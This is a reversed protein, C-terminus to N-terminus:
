LGHKEKWKPWDALVSRGWDSYWGYYERRERDIEALRYKIQGSLDSFIPRNTGIEYFRAWLPPANADKVIKNDDKKNDDKLWVLRIGTLKVQDYWQCAANVARIIEPSPENLSMLLRIVGASEGGSLSPHEYARGKAPKLTVQNHQACWATLEGNVLIQCKLICDIGREFALEAKARRQQDVFSFEKPDAARGLEQEAASHWPSFVEDRELGAVDGMLNVLNVMVDDNFTIYRHYATAPYYQPWGGNEYQAEFIHDLGKLLAQRCPEHHTAHYARALFRMEGVTANNDFHAKALHEVNWGSQKWDRVKSAKSEAATDVNKPWGGLESQWTLINHAARRGASSRYWDASKAAYEEDWPFQNYIWRDNKEMTKRDSRVAGERDKVTEAQLVAASMLAALSLLLPRHKMASDQNSPPCCSFARHGATKLFVIRM